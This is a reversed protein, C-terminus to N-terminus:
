ESVVLIETNGREDVFESGAPPKVDVVLTGDERNPRLSPDVRVSARGDSGTTATKVGDIDATGGKVVVTADSVPDGDAGVVTLEVSREGPTVVEPSPRADLETVSLGQLGGLMNMMVSLSAVGVVLAIVLRIPLGEIAREDAQFSQSRSIEHFRDLM